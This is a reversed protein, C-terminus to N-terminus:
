RRRQRRRRNQSAMHGAIARERFGLGGYGPQDLAKRNQPVLRFPQDFDIKARLPAFHHSQQDPAEQILAFCGSKTVLETPAANKTRRM